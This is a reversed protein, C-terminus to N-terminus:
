DVIAFLTDNAMKKGVVSNAFQYGGIRRLRCVAKAVRRCVFCYKREYDNESLSYPHENGLKNWVLDILKNTRRAISLKVNYKMIKETMSSGKVGTSSKLLLANLVYYNAM